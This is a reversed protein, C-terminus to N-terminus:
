RRRAAALKEEEARFKATIEAMRAAAVRQRELRAERVEPPDPQVKGAELLARIKEAKAEYKQARQGAHEARRLATREKRDPQAFYGASWGKEERYATARARWARLKEAETADREQYSREREAVAECLEAAHEPSEARAPLHVLVRQKVKGDERYSEVIQRYEKGRSRSKRVYAM